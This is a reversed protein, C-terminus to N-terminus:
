RKVMLLALVGDTKIAWGQFDHGRERTTIRVNPLNLYRAKPKPLHFNLRPVALMHRTLCTVHYARACASSIATMFRIRGKMCDGFNGPTEISRRHQHHAYVLADIFGMVVIVYQLSRFFVQTILDRLALVTAQRWFSTFM